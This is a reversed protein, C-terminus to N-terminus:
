FLPRRSGSNKAVWCGELLIRGWFGAVPIRGKVTYICVALNWFDILDACIGTVAMQM